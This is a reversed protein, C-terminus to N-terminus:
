RRAPTGVIVTGVPCQALEDVGSAAAFAAADTVDHTDAGLGMARSVLHITRTLAGAERLIRAYAAREGAFRSARAAIVLVLQPQASDTEESTARLLRRVEPSDAGAVPRLVHEASDYHYMGAKLGAVNRAISYLVLEGPAAGEPARAARYLLEGLGDVTIPADDDFEGCAVHNGIVDTLDAGPLSELDPRALPVPAGAHDPERAPEAPAAHNGPPGGRTSRRHFWLDSASWGRTAADSEEAYADVLFGCWHLDDALQAKIAIPVESDAAGPGDLLALLRPDHVRLDCWSLPNELVFGASDRHLVAFKSLTASWPLATRPRAPPRALPQITYLDRGGDRVTVALWGDAVLDDVLADVGDGAMATLTAPGQAMTELARVQAEGLGTLKRDRAPGALVAGCPDTVCTVGERLAFRTQDPYLVASM